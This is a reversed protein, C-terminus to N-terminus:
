NITESKKIIYYKRDKSENIVEALEGIMIKKGQYSKVYIKIPDGKVIIELQGIKDDVVSSTVVGQRGLFDIVEEGKHNIM